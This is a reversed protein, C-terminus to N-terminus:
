NTDHMYIVFSAYNLRNSFYGFHKRSAIGIEM